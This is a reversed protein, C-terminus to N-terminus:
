IASDAKKYFVSKSINTYPYPHVAEITKDMFDIDSYISEKSLNEQWKLSDIRKHQAFFHDMPNKQIEFGTTATIAVIILVFSTSIIIGRIITRKLRKINLYM